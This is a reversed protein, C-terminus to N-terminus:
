ELIRRFYWLLLLPIVIVIIFAGPGRLQLFLYLAAAIGAIVLLWTALRRALNTEHRRVLLNREVLLREFQRRRAEERVEAVFQETGPTGEILDALAQAQANEGKEQLLVAMASQAYLDNPDLALARRLSEEAQKRRHLRYQTLGLAAWATSSTEDAEVAQRAAQEALRPGRQSAMFWAYEALVDGRRGSLEMAREFSEQALTLRQERWAALGLVRRAYDSGPDLEVARRAEALAEEATEGGLLAQARIARVVADDPVAAALQDTIAVARIDEGRQLAGLAEDILRQIEARDM